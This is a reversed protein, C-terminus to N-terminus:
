PSVRYCFGLIIQVPFSRVAWGHWPYPCKTNDWIIGVQVNGPIWLSRQADRGMGGWGGLWSNWGLIGDIGQGAKHQGLKSWRSGEWLLFDGEGYLFDVHITLLQHSRLDPLLQPCSLRCTKPNVDPLSPPFPSCNWGSCTAARKGRQANDAWHNVRPSIWELASPYIRPNPGAQASIQRQSPERFTHGTNQPDAEKGPASREM